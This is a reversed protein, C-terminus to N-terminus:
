LLRHAIEISDRKSRYVVPVKGKRCAEYFDGVSEFNNRNQDKIWTVGSDTIRAASVPGGIISWRDKKNKAEEVRQVLDIAVPTLAGVELSDVQTSLVPLDKSRVNTAYGRHIVEPLHFGNYYLIVPTRGDYGSILFQNYALLFYDTMTLRVKAYRLLAAHLTYIDIASLSDAAEVNKILRQLTITGFTYQGAVAILCNRFQFIKSTEEFYMMVRDHGYLVTRSDAATVIGNKGIFSAIFTGHFGTHGTSKPVLRTHLIGLLLISLILCPKM